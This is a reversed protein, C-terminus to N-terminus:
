SCAAGRRALDFPFNGVLYHIHTNKDGTSCAENTRCDDSFQNVSTMLHETKRARIPCGLGQDRRSGAYMATREFIEFAKAATCRSGVSHDVSSKDVIECVIPRGGLRIPTGDLSEAASQPARIARQHNSGPGQENLALARECCFLIRGIGAEGALRLLRCKCQRCASDACRHQPKGWRHVAATIM